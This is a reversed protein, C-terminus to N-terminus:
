KNKNGIFIKIERPIYEVVFSDFHIVNNNLVHLVICDTGIDPYEDLNSVYEGNKIEPLSDRSYVSNFRPENQCYKQIESNTLPHPLMSFGKWKWSRCKCSM